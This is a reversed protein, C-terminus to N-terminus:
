FFLNRFSRNKLQGHHFVAYVWLSGGGHSVRAPNQPSVTLPSGVGFCGDDQSMTEHPEYGGVFSRGQDQMKRHHLWSSVWGPFSAVSVQVGEEGEEGQLGEM